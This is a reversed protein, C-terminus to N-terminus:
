GIPYQAYPIITAPKCALIDRISVVLSAYKLADHLFVFTCVGIMFAIKPPFVNTSMPLCIQPIQIVFTASTLHSSFGCRPIMTMEGEIYFGEPGFAIRRGILDRVVM